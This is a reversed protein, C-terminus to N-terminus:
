LWKKLTRVVLEEAAERGLGHRSALEEAICTVSKSETVMEAISHTFALSKKLKEGQPGLEVPKTLDMLWEPLNETEFEIPRNVETTKRACFASVSYDKGISSHPNQMQPVRGSVQNELEFGEKRVLPVLEEITLSEFFDRGVFELPGYQIWRGGPKLVKNILAIQDPPSIPSVDLFWPTLVLDFLGDAFGWDRVDHVLFQMGSRIPNLAALERVVTVSQVDSPAYPFDTLSLKTGQILQSALLLLAPNYDVCITQGAQWRHHLEYPLRCAGAGLVLVREPNKIDSAVKAILDLGAQVENVGWSWDRFILELYDEVKAKQHGSEQLFRDYEAVNARSGVILPDLLRVMASLHSNSNQLYLKLKNRAGKQHISGSRAELNDIRAKLDGLYTLVRYSIERRFKGLDRAVMHLGAVEAHGVKDTLLDKIM